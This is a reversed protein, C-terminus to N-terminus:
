YIMEKEEKEVMKMEKFIEEDVEIINQKHEIM